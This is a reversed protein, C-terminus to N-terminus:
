LQMHHTLHVSPQVPPARVPRSWERNQVGPLHPSVFVNM